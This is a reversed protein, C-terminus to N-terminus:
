FEPTGERERLEKLMEDITGDPTDLSYEIDSKNVGSVRAIQLITTANKITSRVNEIRWHTYPKLQLIIDGIQLNPYDTFQIDTQQIQREGFDAITVQEPSPSFDMWAPIPPYYGAIFGVGKCRTCNSKTVRKLVADWCECRDGETRKTYILVPLGYVYRHAFLHEEIIYTTVLDPKDELEILDSKFTQVTQKTCPDIEAARIQYYYGKNADKLYATYDM